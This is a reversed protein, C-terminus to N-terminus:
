KKNAYKDNCSEMCKTRKKACEIAANTSSTEDNWPCMNIKAFCDRFVYECLEHCLELDLNGKKRRSKKGGDIATICLFAVFLLTNNATQKSDAHHCHHYKHQLKSSGRGLEM